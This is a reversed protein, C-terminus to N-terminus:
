NKALRAILQEVLQKDQASLQRYQQIVDSDPTAEILGPPLERSALEFLEVPDIDVARAAAVLNENRPNPEVITRNVVKKGAELHRWAGESLGARRAAERKSIGLRNRARWLREGIADWQPLAAWADAEAQMEAEHQAAIAEEIEADTAENPDYKGRWYDGDAALPSDKDYLEAIEDPASAHEWEEEPTDDDAM